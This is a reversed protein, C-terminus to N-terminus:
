DDSLVIGDEQSKAWKKGPMKDTVGKITNEVWLHQTPKALLMGFGEAEAGGGVDKGKGVLFEPDICGVALSTQEDTERRWYLFSGCESCFARQVGPTASYIKRSATSEWTIAADPM